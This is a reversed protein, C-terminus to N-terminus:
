THGFAMAALHPYADVPFHRVMEEPRRPRRLAPTSPCARRSSRSGMSTATSYRTRTPRWRWSFGAARPLRDGHRSAAAVGPRPQAKIGDARAGVIVLSRRARRSGRLRMASRGNWVAHAARGRTFGTSSGTSWRTRTPSTTTSPWRRWASSGTWAQAHHPGRNRGSGRSEHRRRAGAGPQTARSESRKAATSKRM